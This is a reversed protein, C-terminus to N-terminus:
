KSRLALTTSTYMPTVIHGSADTGHPTRKAGARRSSASTKRSTASAIASRAKGYSRSVAAKPPSRYGDGVIGSCHVFLVEGDDATIRGYGKEDKYWRVTRTRPVHELDARRIDLGEM